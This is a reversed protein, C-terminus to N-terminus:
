TTNRNHSTRKILIRKGVEPFEPEVIAQRLLTSTDHEVPVVFLIAALRTQMVIQGHLGFGKYHFIEIKLQGLDMHNLFGRVLGHFENKNQGVSLTHFGDQNWKQAFVRDSNRRLDPTCDIARKAKGASLPERAIQFGFLDDALEQAHLSPQTGM